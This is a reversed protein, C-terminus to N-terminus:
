VRAEVLALRRRPRRVNVTRVEGAIAVEEDALVDAIAREPVPEEYRHPRHELLDRITRLGIRGLKKALSPGV